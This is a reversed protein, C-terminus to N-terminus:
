RRRRGFAIAGGVIFGVVAAGVLLESRHKRLQSKVDTVESWRIRLADVSRALERRQVVVDNRIQDASRTGPPPPVFRGNSGSVTTRISTSADM